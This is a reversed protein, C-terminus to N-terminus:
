YDFMKGYGCKKCGIRETNTQNNYKTIEKIINKTFNSQLLQNNQNINVLPDNLSDKSAVPNPGHVVDQWIRHSTGAQSLNLRNSLPTIDNSSFINRSQYYDVRDYFDDRIVPKEKPKGLPKKM